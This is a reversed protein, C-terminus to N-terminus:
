QSIARQFAEVWNVKNQNIKTWDLPVLKDYDEPHIPLKAKEEDTLEAWVERHTSVMGSTRTRILQFEKSFYLNLYEYAVDQYPANKVLSVGGFMVPTIEKPAAWSAPFGDERLAPAQAASTTGLVVENLQLLQILESSWTHVTHMHPMLSKVREIGPQINDEGGGDLRALAVLACLGYSSEPSTISVLGSLEERWLDEWSDPPAWGNKKFIEENYILGIPAISSSLVKIGEDDSEVTWDFVDRINPAKDPDIADLLGMDNAQIAIPTDMGNISVSPNDKMLNLKQIQTSSGMEEAVLEIGFKDKLRPAIYDMVDKLHNPQISLYVQFKEGEYKKQASVGISISTLLSILIVVIIFKRM